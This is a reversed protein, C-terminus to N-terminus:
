QTFRPDTEAQGAGPTAQAATAPQTGKVSDILSSFRAAITKARELVRVAPYFRWVHECGLEHVMMGYRTKQGQEPFLSM